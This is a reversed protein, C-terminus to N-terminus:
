NRDDMPAVGIHGALFPPRQQVRVIKAATIEIRDQDAGLTTLRERRLLDM